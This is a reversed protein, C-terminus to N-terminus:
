EDDRVEKKDEAEVGETKPKVRWDVSLELGTFMKKAEEVKIKLEELWLDAMTTAQENNSDVEAVIMREKKDTNATNVGIETLFRDEWTGLDALLETVIYTNKIDMNFVEWNRADAQSKKKKDMVVSPEGSMIADFLKKATEAEAKNEVFAIYALKSNILNTIATESTLAMMGAYYNVLDLISGYDPQLKLLTCQKGIRPDLIGSLLPNTIIANTPRYFIDFGYLTCHQPIVGYKDTKVIAVYGYTFLSYLFYDKDWTEPLEWKFISIAKQLLYRVFFRTIMADQVHITSPTITANENNIYNYSYPASSM